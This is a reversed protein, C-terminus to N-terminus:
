NRKTENLYENRRNIMRSVVNQRRGTTYNQIEDYSMKGYKEQKLRIQNTKKGRKSESIAKGRAVHDCSGFSRNVHKAREETTMAGIRRAHIDSLKAKLESSLPARNQQGHGRDVFRRKSKAKVEFSHGCGCGCLRTELVNKAANRVDRRADRKAIYDPNTFQARTKDAIALKALAGADSAYFGNLSAIMKSKVSSDHM